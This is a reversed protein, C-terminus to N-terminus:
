RGWGPGASPGGPMAPEPGPSAATRRIDAAAQHEVRAAVGLDAQDTFLGDIGAQLFRVQEDIVHGYGSPVSGVRLEAPLFANEARFTYPHVLLGARHADAVLATPTGLRRRGHAPDGPEQGTRHRRGYRAVWHLGTPTTLNAYTRPDGRVVFDYPAGTASTLQIVRHAARPPAPRPPEPGRFVARAGTCTAHNLGNRRLARLLPEELSLGVSDFYTPPKTEPYVGIERHLERSVLDPEIVDAGM